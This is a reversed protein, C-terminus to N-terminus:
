SVNYGLHIRFTDYIGWPLICKWSLWLSLYLQIKIYRSTNQHIKIYIFPDCWSVHSICAFYMCSVYSVYGSLLGWWIRYCVGRRGWPAEPRRSRVSAGRAARACEFKDCAVFNPKRTSVCDWSSLAGSSHHIEHTLSCEIGLCTYPQPRIFMFFLLGSGRPDVM